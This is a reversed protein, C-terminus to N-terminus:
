SVVPVVVSQEGGSVGGVLSALRTDSARVKRPHAGGYRRHVPAKLLVVWGKRFDQGEWLSYFVALPFPIESVRMM